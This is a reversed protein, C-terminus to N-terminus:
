ADGPRDRRTWEIRPLCHRRISETGRCTGEAESPGYNSSPLAEPTAPRQAAHAFYCEPSVWCLLRAKTACIFKRLNPLIIGRACWSPVLGSKVNLRSEKCIGTISVM